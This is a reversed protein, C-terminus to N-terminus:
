SEGLIEIVSYSLLALENAKMMADATVFPGPFVAGKNIAPNKCCFIPADFVFAAARFKMVTVNLMLVVKGLPDCIVIAPNEPPVAGDPANGNTSTPSEFEEHPDSPQAARKELEADPEGPIPRQSLTPFVSIKNKNFSESVNM